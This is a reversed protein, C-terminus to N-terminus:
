AIRRIYGISSKEIIGHIELLSLTKNLESISLTSLQALDDALLENQTDLADLILKESNNQPVYSSTKTTSIKETISYEELIDSSNTILKAGNKILTHTGLSVNSFISGPIAYVDRNYDLALDATILAGSKEPAEIVLTAKSMGAIIRNRRPFFEPRAELRPPFESIIAGGGKIINQALKTNSLPSLHLLGSGIVAYTVTTTDVSAKHALTDIGLALGSIICIGSQTIPPLVQEAVRKGYASHKRTGVVSLLNKHTKPLRGFYYLIPPFDPIHNLLTPYTDDVFACVSIGHYNLFDKEKDAHITNRKSTLNQIQLERVGCRKLENTSAYFIREFSGLSAYLKKIPKSGISCVENLCHLYIRDDM